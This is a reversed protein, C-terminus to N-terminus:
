HNVCIKSLMPEYITLAEKRLDVVVNIRARIDTLITLGNILILVPRQQIM